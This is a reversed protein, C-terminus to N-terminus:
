WLGADGCGSLLWFPWPQMGLGLLESGAVKRRQERPLLNIKIM